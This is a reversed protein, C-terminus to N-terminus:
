RLAYSVPYPVKNEFDFHKISSTIDYVQTAIHDESGHDVEIQSLGEGQWPLRLYAEEVEVEWLRLDQPLRPLLGGCPQVWQRSLVARQELLVAFSLLLVLM